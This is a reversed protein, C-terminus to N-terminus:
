KRWAQPGGYLGIHSVTGDLNYITTDGGNIAPSGEAVHFDGEGLFLPDESLNGNLGTNDWIDGYNGEANDWVINHAFEWKAWDGYNQVGVCPCVWEERWGNGAVINNVIRGRSETSAPMIGCNGNHHVLNNTIDMYSTHTAIIGWGLNDHVLNNRAIVWSSGFAGIGKWYGTIENRYAVCTADWTVGIGAGVPEDLAAPEDVVLIAQGGDLGLSNEIKTQM